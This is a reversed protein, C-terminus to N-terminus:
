GAPLGGFRYLKLLNHGLSWLKWEASVNTLGRLLFRRLGRAQKIQGFVPEVVPKRSRPRLCSSSM